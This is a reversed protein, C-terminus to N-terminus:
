HRKMEKNDKGRKKRKKDFHYKFLSTTSISLTLLFLSFLFILFSKEKKIKHSLFFKDIITGILSLFSRFHFLSCFLSSMLTKNTMM